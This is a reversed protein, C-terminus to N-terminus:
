YKNYFIKNGDLFIFTPVLFMILVVIFMCNKLFCQFQIKSYKYFSTGNRSPNKIFPM